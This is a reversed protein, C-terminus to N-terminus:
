KDNIKFNDIIILSDDKYNDERRKEIESFIKVYTESKEECALEWNNSTISSSTEFNINKIDNYIPFLLESWSFKKIKTGM